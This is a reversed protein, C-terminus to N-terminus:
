YCTKTTARDSQACYTGKSSGCPGRCSKPQVLDPGPSWASHEQSGSLSRSPTSTNAQPDFPPQQESPKEHASIQLFQPSESHAQRLRSTGTICPSRSIAISELILHTHGM